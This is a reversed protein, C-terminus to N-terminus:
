AESSWIDSAHSTELCFKIGRNCKSQIGEFTQIKISGKAWNFGCAKCKRQEPLYQNRYANRQDYRARKIANSIANTNNTNSPRGNPHFHSVMKSVNPMHATRKSLISLSISSFGPISSSSDSNDLLEDVREPLPIRIKFSLKHKDNFTYIDEMTPLNLENIYVCEQPFSVTEGNLVVKELKEFELAKTVMSAYPLWDENRELNCLHLSKISSNNVCQMFSASNLNNKLGQFAPIDTKYIQLKSTLIFDFWVATHYTSYDADFSDFFSNVRTNSLNLHELRHGSKYVMTYMNENFLNNSLNLKTVQTSAINNTLIRCVDEKCCHQLSLEFINDSINHLCTKLFRNTDIHISDHHALVGQDSKPAKKTGVDFLNYDSSMFFKRNKYCLFKNLWFSFYIKVSGRKIYESFVHWSTERWQKLDLDFACITDFSKSLMHSTLKFRFPNLVIEPFVIRNHRMARCTCRLNFQFVLSYYGSDFRECIVDILEPYLSTLM